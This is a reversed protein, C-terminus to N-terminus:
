PSKKFYVNIQLVDSIKQRGIIYIFFILFIITFIEQTIFNIKESKLDCLNYFSFTWINFDFTSELRESFVKEKLSALIISKIVYLLFIAEGQFFDYYFLETIQVTTDRNLCHKQIYMVVITWKTLLTDWAHLPM